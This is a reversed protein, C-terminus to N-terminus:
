NVKFDLTVPMFYHFYILTITMKNQSYDFLFFPQMKLWSLKFCNIQKVKIKKKESDRFLFLFQRIDEFM